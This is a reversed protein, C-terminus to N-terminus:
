VTKSLQFKRSNTAGLLAFKQSQFHSNGTAKSVAFVVRSQQSMKTIKADGHESKICVPHGFVVGTTSSAHEFRRIKPVRRHKTGFV